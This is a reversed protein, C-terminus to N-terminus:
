PYLMFFLPCAGNESTIDLLRSYGEGVFIPGTGKKRVGLESTSMRSFDITSSRVDM